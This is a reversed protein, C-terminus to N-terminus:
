LFVVDALRDRQQERGEQRRRPRTQSHHMRPMPPPFRLNPILRGKQRDYTVKLASITSGLFRKALPNVRSGNTLVTLSQTFPLCVFFLSLSTISAFAAVRLPYEVVGTEGELLSIDLHPKTAEADTFDIITPHNAYIRLHRPTVEGRGVRDFSRLYETGTSCLMVEGLKLM